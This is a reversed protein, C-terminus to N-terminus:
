YYYSARAVQAELYYYYPPELLELRWVLLLLLYAQAERRRILLLLLSSCSSSGFKYNHLSSCCSLGGFKYCPFLLSTSNIPVVATALARQATWTHCSVMPSLLCLEKETETERETEPALFYIGFFIQAAPQLASRGTCIRSVHEFLVSVLISVSVCTQTEM